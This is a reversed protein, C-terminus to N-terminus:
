DLNIALLIITLNYITHYILSYKFSFYKRFLTTIIGLILQPAFLFILGLFSMIKIDTSSYNGVHSLVFVFISVIAFLIPVKRKSFILYIVCLLYIGLAIKLILLDFVIIYIFGVLLSLLYYKNRKLPLRYLVEELIPAILIFFISYFAINDLINEKNEIKPKNLNLYNEILDLIGLVIINAILTVVLVIVKKKTKKLM